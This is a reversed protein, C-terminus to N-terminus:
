VEPGPSSRRALCVSFNSQGQRDYNSGQDSCPSRDRYWQWNQAGRVIARCEDDTRVPFAARVNAVATERRRRDLRYFLAGLWAGASVLMRRPMLRVGLRVSLVALYELRHRVPRHRRVPAGPREPLTTM